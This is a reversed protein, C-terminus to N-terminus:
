AGGNGRKRRGRFITSRKGEGRKRRRLRRVRGREKKITEKKKQIAFVGKKGGRSISTHTRQAGKGGGYECNAKKKQQRRDCL